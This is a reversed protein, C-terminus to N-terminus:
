AHGHTNVKDLATGFAADRWRRVARAYCIAYYILGVVAAWQIASLGGFRAEPKLFDVLLRFALYGVMFLKFVDGNAHPRRAFAVLAVALLALFLAEYLQTPHRFVHDGFDVGWPLNTQVGYTRDSLGTLFCGIRGLAAGIALPVAFLDGTSERVGLVFKTAEVGILGGILAGVITKGQLLFVPDRLHQWTGVPDEFWYLVKSGIAAGAIAAAIISWRTGDAIVDGRRRRQRLYIRFGIFYALAEFVLHPHLRLPGFPIYVPFQV